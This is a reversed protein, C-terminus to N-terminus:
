RQVPRALERIRDSCTAKMATEKVRFADLNFQALGMPPRKGPQALEVIRPTAVARKAAESVPWQPDRPAEYKSHLKKPRALEITRPSAVAQQASKSVPRIVSEPYSHKYCCTAQRVCPEALREIRASPSALTAPTPVQTPVERPPIFEPHLLKPRALELIRPSANYTLASLSVPWEPSRQQLFAPHCKKPESLKLLRESPYAFKVLRPRGGIVSRYSRQHKCFDKKSKSLLSIRSSPRATTAGWSLPCITEQNGWELRPSSEYAVPKPEALVRIRTHSYVSSYSSVRIRGAAAM